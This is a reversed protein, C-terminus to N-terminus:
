PAAVKARRESLLALVVDILWQEPGNPRGLAYWLALQLGMCTFIISVGIVGGVLVARWSDMTVTVWGVDLAFVAFTTLISCIGIRLFGGLNERFKMDEKSELQALFVFAELVVCAVFALPALDMRGSQMVAVMALVKVAAALAVSLFNRRLRGEAMLVISCVWSVPSICCLWAFTAIMPRAAEWKPGLLGAVIYGSTASLGLSLPVVFTLLAAIVPLTLGVASSGQHRKVSLGAYLARVAPAVLETVPLVAIEHAILYVGLLSTGMVPGLLFVDCREWVLAAISTAWIWLSFGLLERWHELSLKPRWPHVIYTMALRSLGSVAIGILLAWYSEIMWALTITVAFQLIRPVFLLRFEMGFELRRRFEVVGVNELGNAFALAALLLLIMTLRPENFWVSCAQAGLAIVSATLLGRLAQLTFATPYWTRGTDPRRVLADQLGLSSFSDIAATLTTAMAILGFDAPVLLRALVLTSVLGLCRTVMRWAVMWGAAVATRAAVNEIQPQIDSTMSPEM